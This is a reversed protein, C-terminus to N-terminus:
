RDDPRQDVRPLQVTHDDDDAGGFLEDVLSLERTGPDDDRERAAPPSEGPARRQGAAREAREREKQQRRQEAHEARAQAHEARAQQTETEHLAAVRAREAAEAAERLRRQEAAAAAEQQALRLAEEAGAAELQAREEAEARARAEALRRAEESRRRREAEAARERELEGLQSASLPLVPQLRAKITETIEGAPRTGDVVLYRSGGRHALELFRDRVREHFEHPESELRDPSEVRGLGAEAPVDLLVTLHPLLGDTAWRSLRAVESGALDRGAGQYAVSSDLYRDTIVVHGLELAPRVVTAVHEARDAAFLLAEARSSLHPPTSGDGGEAPEPHDLLVSRLRRGVETGGPEFTVVVDHGLSELWSRLAAAQTSKGAGEGGELAIFFGERPGSPRLGVPESVFAAALDSGIPVGRRDDMHRFSVFGLGAALLGAVLFVFAAGNYTLTMADTVEIGHRGIAAALLPAVALVLVLVVRVMTQVFAFTRGRLEDAVELGLLTYGTVWSVGAFSGIVLTVIVAVVLNPILALLALALGAGGLALGFLRRRSFDPLLRPGLFMGSALGLFVTGFLLGYGPDGGGLDTVFTRALGIVAGGAAFAGLMGVVLGRILPTQGVYKWGEVLTSWISPTDDGTLRERAPIDTLRFITAASVLFTAANVYLALDVADIQPVGNDLIGTVLALGAFLAAAVPASGYTTFLSLQNATELRERPVLNPVTAEKAPIWMLSCVEILFTAVFLWRLTGVLPISLFLAFRCVDCVVMTWRRDLRDAVVGAIPGVLIAPALRLIFVGAVALNQAAYGDKALRPALATLALLGLWDGLSSLSLATWLRRFAQIRLVGRLDHDPSVPQRPAVATSM